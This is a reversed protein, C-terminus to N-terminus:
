RTPPHVLELRCCLRRVPVALRTPGAGRDTTYMCLTRDYLSRKLATPVYPQSIPTPLSCRALPPREPYATPFTLELLHEQGLHDNLAITIESIHKNIRRVQGWEVASLDSAIRAFRADAEDSLLREPHLVETSDHCWGQM